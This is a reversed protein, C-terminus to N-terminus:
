VQTKSRWPKFDSPQMKLAKFFCVRLATGHIAIVSEVNKPSNKRKLKVKKYKQLLVFKSEVPDRWLNRFTLHDQLHNIAAM